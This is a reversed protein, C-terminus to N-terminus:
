VEESVFPNSLDTVVKVGIPMYFYANSSVDDKGPRVVPIQYRVEVKLNGMRYVEPYEGGTRGNSPEKTMMSMRMQVWALLDYAPDSPNQEEEEAFGQILITWDEDQILSQDGGGNPDLQRPAELLAIFPFPTEDGFVTRGRYVAESLDYPCEVGWVPAIWAPTMGKLHNSLFKLVALKKSIM